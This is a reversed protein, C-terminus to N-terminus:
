CSPGDFRDPGYEMETERPRLPHAPNEGPEQHSVPTFPGQSRSRSLVCLVSGTSYYYLRAEQYFNVLYM